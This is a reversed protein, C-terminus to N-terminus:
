GSREKGQELRIEDAVDATMARLLVTFGAALFGAMFMPFIGVLVNGKPIAMLCILILSYGTTAVMVARHKSIKMALRGMMPAGVFGAAIYVMLLLSAESTSFGRSDTFFFMYVAAMWGPGLALLLDALLIRGMTPRAFLSWYERLQFQHGKVEPAIYEPTKWVVAAVAVPTLALIFWGMGPVGLAEEDFGLLKVVMPMTLVLVSGAVGVA